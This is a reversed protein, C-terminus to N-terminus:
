KNLRAILAELEDVREVTYDAERPVGMDGYWVTLAVKIGAAKGCLIDNYGDGIYLCSAPAAQLLEAAKLVPDPSPKTHAADEAAVIADFCDQLHFYRLIEDVRYHDKGTCIATKMGTKRLRRILDFCPENIENGAVNASSIERYIRVMEAPFGLKAFLHPVSDGTNALLVSFDPCKGDGVTKEYSGYYAAKQVAVSNILCGDMDFILSLM